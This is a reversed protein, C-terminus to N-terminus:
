PTNRMKKTLIAYFPWSCLKQDLKIFFISTIQAVPASISFHGFYPPSSTKPPSGFFSNNRMKWFKKLFRKNLRWDSHMGFKTTIPATKPGWRAHLLHIQWLFALIGSKSGMHSKLTCINGRAYSRNKPLFVGFQHIVFFTRFKSM